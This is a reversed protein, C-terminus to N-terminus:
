LDQALRFGVGSHRYDPGGRYRNASRLNRPESDWSGGRRGGDKEGACSLEAGGRYGEDYASCTWEWVNGHVEHLGWGNAPLSGVEVTKGRYIGKEGQGYTYDRDYNAQATSLTEGFWFPTQTGARAAYEWEAETPLRYRKGTQASLWQAYAMADHWDVNVVPQRGRGFPAAPMAVFM